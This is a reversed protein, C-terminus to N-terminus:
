KYEATGLRTSNPSCIARSYWHLSKSNEWSSGCFFFALANRLRICVRRRLPRNCVSISNRILVFIAGGFSFLSPVSRFVFADFCCGVPPVDPGVFACNSACLFAIRSVKFCNFSFLSASSSSAKSIPLTYSRANPNSSHSVSLEFTRGRKLAIRPLNRTQNSIRISKPPVCTRSSRSSRARQCKRIRERERELNKEERFTFM